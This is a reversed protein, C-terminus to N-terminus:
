HQEVADVLESLQHQMSYSPSAHPVRRSATGEGGGGERKATRGMCCSAPMRAREGGELQQRRGCCRKRLSACDETFFFAKKMRLAITRANCGPQVSGPQWSGNQRVVQSCAGATRGQLRQGILSLWGALCVERGSRGAWGAKGPGGVVLM